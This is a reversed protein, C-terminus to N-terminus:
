RTSVCRSSSVSPSSSRRDSPLMKSISHPSFNGRNSRSRSTSIEKSRSPSLPRRILDDTLRAPGRRGPHAQGCAPLPPRWERSDDLLPHRAAFIAFALHRSQMFTIIGHSLNRAFHNGEPEHNGRGHRREAFREYNMVTKKQPNRWKNLNMPPQLRAIVQDEAKEIDDKDGSLSAHNMSLPREDVTILANEGADSFRYNEWNSDSQGPARRCARLSLKDKLLAGLSRRPSSFGSHELAFHNREGAM